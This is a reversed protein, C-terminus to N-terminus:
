GPRVFPYPPNTQLRTDEVATGVTFHYLSQFRRGHLGFVDHVADDFYAGIGTARVGAAEAELYLVQGVMGAEWFLRRYFWAGTERLSEEFRGIMGLSFAGDGAIAQGLSLQAAGQRCDTEYLLFLPLDNPCHKPRTWIFETKMESRLVEVRRPDRVLAYLGPNLSEVRHVFMLLDICPPWGISDWPVCAPDGIVAVRGLMRFFTESSIGTRGDLAVASRRQFIIQKATPGNRDIEDGGPRTEVTRCPSPETALKRTADAAADIEDWEVHERSLRNGRGMWRGARVGEVFEHPVIRAMEGAEGSPWVVALLEPEEREVGSFDEGRDLGLVGALSEDGMGELVTLRWGLMAASIRLAGLAHGVDHQCYRFAREGYKWAERWLISSLGVLFSGSPFRASFASWVDAAFECRRELGHEKPAYHYVGPGPIGPLEPGVVLYGETPHLNGSSPNIRLAWRSDGFQKWASLALSCEFFRSVSRHSVASPPIAGPGFLAEYPPTDDTEPLLLPVLECGAFRRFPDPQNAWDLYGPGLAYRHPHHKSREHYGIIREIADL